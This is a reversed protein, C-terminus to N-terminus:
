TASWYQRCDHSMSPSEVTSVASGTGGGKHLLFLGRTSLLAGGAFVFLGLDALLLGWFPICGTCTAGQYGVTSVVFGTTGVVLGSVFLLLGYSKLHLLWRGLLYTMYCGGAFVGVLLLFSAVM